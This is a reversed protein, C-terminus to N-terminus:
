FAAPGLNSGQGGHARKEEGGEREEEKQLYNKECRGWWGWSLTLTLSILQSETLHLPAKEELFNFNKGVRGHECQESWFRGWNGSEAPETTPNLPKDGLTVM